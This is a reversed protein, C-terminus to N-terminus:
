SFSLFPVDRWRDTDRVGAAYDAISKAKSRTKARNKMCHPTGFKLIGGDWYIIYPSSIILSRTTKIYSIKNLHIRKTPIIVPCFLVHAYGFVSHRSM